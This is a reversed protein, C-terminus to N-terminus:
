NSVYNPSPTYQTHVKVKWRKQSQVGIKFCLTVIHMIRLQKKTQFSGQILRVTLITWPTPIAWLLPRRKRIIDHWCQGGNKFIGLYCTCHLNSSQNMGQRTLSPVLSAVCELTMLMFEEPSVVNNYINFFINNDCCVICQYQFHMLNHPKNCVVKSRLRHNNQTTLGECKCGQREFM